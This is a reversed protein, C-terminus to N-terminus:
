REKEMKEMRPRIETIALYISLGSIAVWSELAYMRRTQMLEWPVERAASWLPGTTEPAFVVFVMYTAYGIQALFNVIIFWHIALWIRNQM